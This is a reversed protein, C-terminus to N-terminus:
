YFMNTKRFKEHTFKKLMKAVLKRENKTGDKMVNYIATNFQETEGSIATTKKNDWKKRSYKRHVKLKKESMRYLIRAVSIESM